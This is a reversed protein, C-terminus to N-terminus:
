PSNQAQAFRGKHEVYFNAMQANAARTKAISRAVEHLDKGPVVFLMRDEGIGTFTRMGICGLSMACHGDNIASPIAACAPRGFATTPASKNWSAGGVAEGLLMAQKATVWVLAVDPDIPFENLPGYLIGARSHKVKPIGAPEDRGIYGCETMMGVLGSLTESVHQPLNFGMVMSGVACNYHLEAPAFFLAREAERWFRCASPVSQGTTTVNAPADDVFALGIPPLDLELDREFNSAVEAYKLM